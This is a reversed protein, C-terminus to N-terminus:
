KKEDSVPPRMFRPNVLNGYDTHELLGIINLRSRDLESFPWTVKIAGNVISLDGTIGCLPCEVKTGKTITIMRGHCVPCVGKEDGYWPVDRHYKGLAYAVNHGLKEARAKFMITRPNQDGHAGHIDLEDVLHMNLPFGFLKMQTLGMSVWHHDQAGGVSIYAVYQQKIDRPDIPQYEGTEDKPKLMGPNEPDPGPDVRKMFEKWMQARDHAPGLRDTLNKLQGTPALVYVPAAVIIADADLIAEKVMEYDDKVICTIPKGHERNGRSCAGCGQCRGIKLNCCNIVRVDAGDQKAAEIAINLYKSCEGKDRGFNLGLVKNM